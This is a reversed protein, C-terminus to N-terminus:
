CANHWSEKTAFKECAILVELREPRCSADNCRVRHAISCVQTSHLVGSSHMLRGNLEAGPSKKMRYIALACDIPRVMGRRASQLVDQATTTPM